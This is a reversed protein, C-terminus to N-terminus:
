SLSYGDSPTSGALRNMSDLYVDIGKNRYECRGSTAIIFTHDDFGGNTLSNATELLTQRAARRAANFKTRPPVFNKEFGNPTVVQPRIELLQECETATM